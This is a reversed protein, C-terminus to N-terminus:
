KHHCDQPNRKLPITNTSIASWNSLNTSTELIYSEGIKGVFSLVLTGNTTVASIKATPSLSSYNYFAGIGTVSQPTPTITRSAPTIFGTVDIFSVTNTINAALLFPNTLNSLASNANSAQIIWGAGRAIAEPPDIYVYVLANSANINAKETTYIALSYQTDFYFPVTTVPAARVFYVGSANALTLTERLGTDQVTNNTSGVLELEGDSRLVFADLQINLNTSVKTADIRYSFGPWAYFKIWDEDAPSTFNHTQVSGVDFPVASKPENDPEQADPYCSLWATAKESLRIMIGGDAIEDRVDFSYGRTLEERMTFGDGDPDSDLNHGLMGFWYEDQWDALGNTDTDSSTFYRAIAVADNTMTLTVMPLAVGSASAQRVGNVEWYGFTYGSSGSGFALAPTQVTSGSDVYGSQATVIGQPDSRIDFHKKQSADRFTVDDSLRIMIGGDAIEDRVAFSYGRTLEERMTFGDGDPDSDLNHGLMGFWYEDQWDALGNTDTDSSTFYRAIAVADNAMTLTVMPLAVGSASAQRVGNVEWYGFIYSSTGSGYAIAPTQITNGTNM